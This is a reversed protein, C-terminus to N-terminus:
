YPVLECTTSKFKTLFENSDNGESFTDMREIFTNIYRYNNILYEPILKKNMQIEWEKFSSEGILLAHDKFSFSIANIFM